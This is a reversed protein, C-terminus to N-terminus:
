TSEQYTKSLLSAFREWVTLSFRRAVDQEATLERWPDEKKLVAWKTGSGV